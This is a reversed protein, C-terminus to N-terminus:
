FVYEPFEGQIADVEEPLTAPNGITFGKLTINTTEKDNYRAIEKILIPIIVGAYGEGAIYFNNPQLEPFKVFFENITWVLIEAVDDDEYSDWSGISFGSGPVTDIYLM